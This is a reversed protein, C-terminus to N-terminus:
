PEKLVEPDQGAKSRKILLTDEQERRLHLRLARLIRLHMLIRSLRLGKKQLTQAHKGTLNLRIAM